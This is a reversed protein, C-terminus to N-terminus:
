EFWIIIESGKPVATFASPQQKKAKGTGYPKLVLNNQRLIKASERITLGTLDPIATYNKALVEKKLTEPNKKDISTEDVAKKELSQMATNVTPAIGYILLTQQMIEKFAPGAVLGGYYISSAPQDVIVLVVFSPDEVPAVGVFSAIYEGSAYGGTKKLKEATGTKGAIRYGPIQALQGGGKSVVDEMMALMKKSTEVSVAREREQTKGEKLIEGNPLVIKKIVYPKVLVGDNAIAGIACALQMPTVAIAQGISMSAVDISRMENTKFLIGNEEGPLDIDTFAGFGFKRAYDNMRDSGLMLGLEVMNTNISSKIVDRFTINGHGQGDSNKIVRDAVRITGYDYVKTEPAILSENLGASGVIPKFTSGPEYIMSVADNAWAEEPFNYFYNPDFGPVNAMAIIEGTKVNMVIACAAKANTRKVAETLAKETAFQVRNDITLYVSAMKQAINAEMVSSFIPKGTVDIELNQPLVASKLVSDLSMELGSLGRDDTGVFGLVQAALQGLPYYRKSEKLFGLGNLKNDDIIKSIKDTKDKDMTRELWVFNSTKSFIEYLSAESKNLIPALLEAALKRPDRKVQNEKTFDRSDDMGLPDVYLSLSILSIALTKGSTDLITGRPSNLERMVSQRREAMSALREGEILQIWGIRVLCAIFSVVLVFLIFSTRSNKYYKRKKMM